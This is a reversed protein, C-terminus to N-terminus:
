WWEREEREVRKLTCRIKLAEFRYECAKAIQANNKSRRNYNQKEAAPTNDRQQLKMDSKRAKDKEKVETWSNVEWRM